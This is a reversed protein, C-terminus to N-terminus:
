KFEIELCLSEENITTILYLCKNEPPRYEAECDMKNSSRGTCKRNYNTHTKSRVLKQRRQQPVFRGLKILVLFFSLFKLRPM